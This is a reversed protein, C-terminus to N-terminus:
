SGHAKNPDAMGRRDGGACRMVEVVDPLGSELELIRGTASMAISSSLLSLVVVAAPLAGADDGSDLM